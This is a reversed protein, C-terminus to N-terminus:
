VTVTYLDVTEEEGMEDTTEVVNEVVFETALAVCVVDDAGTEDPVVTAPLLEDVEVPLVQRRIRLRPVSTRRRLM